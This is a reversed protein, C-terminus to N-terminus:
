PKGAITAIAAPLMLQTVTDEVPWREGTLCDFRERSRVRWIWGFTPNIM